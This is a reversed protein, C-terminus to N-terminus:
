GLVIVRAKPIVTYPDYGVLGARFAPEQRQALRERQGADAQRLGALLGPELRISLPAAMEQTAAPEGATAWSVALTGNPLQVAQAHPPLLHRMADWIAAHASDMLEGEDHAVGPNCLWAVASPRTDFVRLPVGQRRAVKESTRTLKSTPVVSAVRLHAMWQAVHEGIQMQGAIHMDGELRQLDFLIRSDGHTRTRTGLQQILALLPQLQVQGTLEVDVYDPRRAVRFRMSPAGPAPSSPPMEPM